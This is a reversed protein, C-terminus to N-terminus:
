CAVMQRISLAIGKEELSGGYTKSVVVERKLDVATNDTADKECSLILFFVILCSLKRM